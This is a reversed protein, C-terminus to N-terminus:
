QPTVLREGVKGPWVHDGSREDNENLIVGTGDARPLEPTKVIAAIM